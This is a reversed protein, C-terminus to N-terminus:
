LSAHMYQRYSMMSLTKVLSSVSNLAVELMEPSCGPKAIKKVTDIYFQFEEIKEIYGRDHFGSCSEKLLLTTNSSTCDNMLKGDETRLICKGTRRNNYDTHAVASLQQASRTYSKDLVAEDPNESAQCESERWSNM